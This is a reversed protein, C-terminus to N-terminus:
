RCLMGCSGLQTQPADAIREWDIMWYKSKLFWFFVHRSDIGWDYHTEWQSFYGLDDACGLM